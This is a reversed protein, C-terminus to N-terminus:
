NQLILLLYLVIQQYLNIAIWILFVGQCQSQYHYLWRRLLCPNLKLCPLLLFYKSGALSSSASNAYAYTVLVEEKEIGVFPKNNNNHDTVQSCNKFYVGKAHWAIYVNNVGALTFQCQCPPRWRTWNSGKLSSAWPTSKRVLLLIPTQQVM